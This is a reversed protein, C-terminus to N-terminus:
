RYLAPPDRQSMRLLCRTTRGAVVRLTEAGWPICAGKARQVWIRDRAEVVVDGAAVKKFRALGGRTTTSSDVRGGADRILVTIRDIPRDGLTEVVVVLKGSAGGPTRTAAALPDAFDLLLIMGVASMLLLNLPKKSM